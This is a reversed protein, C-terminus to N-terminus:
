AAGITAASAGPDEGRCRGRRQARLRHDQRPEPPLRRHHQRPEASGLLHRGGQRGAARHGGPERRLGISRVAVGRRGQVRGAATRTRRASELTGAISRVAAPGVGYKDIAQQAAAKLRPHDAIGLYNNSCFNLVRRGDVVIWAGQARGITRIANFLGQDKFAQLENELWTLKNDSM